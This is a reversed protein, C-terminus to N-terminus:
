TRKVTNWISEFMLQFVQIVAVDEIVLAYVAPAYNVILLREKTLIMDANLPSDGKLQKVEQRKGTFYDAYYDPIENGVILDRARIDKEKVQRCFNKVYDTFRTDLVQPTFICSYSDQNLTEDYLSTISELGDYFQLRPRTSSAQYLSRLQPLLNNFVTYKYSLQEALKQPDAPLYIRKESPLLTAIGQIVLADLVAYCNPRLMGTKQAIQSATAKGLELLALYAEAEREKLGSLQIIEKLEM